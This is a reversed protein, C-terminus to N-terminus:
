RINEELFGRLTQFGGHPYQSIDENNKNIMCDTLLFVQMGLKKAIMDEAVDNGVMICNEPVEGIKELLERYYDLNPKCFRSNEYTTVLDFDAAKIGAWQMRAGTAVAPFIPNTALVCRCGKGKLWTILDGSLHTHGCSFSVFQFENHYFDDFLHEDKQVDKEYLTSFTQWFREENTTSGDNAVMAKTGAWICQILKDPDYGHPVMKTALSGLYAKIFEEQDMPLLTGDLDFLVTKM